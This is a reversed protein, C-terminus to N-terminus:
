AWDAHIDHAFGQLGFAPVSEAARADIAGLDDGWVALLTGYAAMADLDLICVSLHRWGRVRRWM